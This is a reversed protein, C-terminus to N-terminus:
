SPKDSSGDSAGDGCVVWEGDTQVVTFDRDGPRDVGISAASRTDFGKARAVDDVVCADEPRLSLFLTTNRGYRAPALAAGDEARPRTATPDGAVGDSPFGPHGSSRRGPM